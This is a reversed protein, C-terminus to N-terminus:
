LLSKKRDLKAFQRRVMLWLAIGTLTWSIPYSVYIVWLEPFARFVTCIWVVRLACTGIFSALASHTAKGLGRMVGSSADMLGYTVFLPWRWLMRAKATDWAIASLVDDMEKVGYLAFIPVHLLYLVGIVAVAFAANLLAGTLAVRRVRDYKCAGLNQSTFSVIAQTASNVATFAFNEVSTVAANSKVVPQYAADPPAVMNNVQLISSQILMNSISFLSSQVGSPLGIRLIAWLETKDACLARLSFRCPGEDRMLKGYLVAASVAASIGTAIAVGEVSLGVVLVFFLNLLVNLVGSLMLVALPTTTDGKARYIAIVYNSMAHFPLALFYIRAYIVSLELLKGENGLTRMVFPAIVFGILGGSVGSVFGLVTATHVAKSAREDNRAGLHRAVVVNAGVSLGIFLNVILATFSGTTGIAGVADPENSLGAVVMDASNYFVQLLNTLIVPAIFLLMKRLISGNVMDIDRRKALVM